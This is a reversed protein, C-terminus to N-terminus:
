ILLDRLKTERLEARIKKLVIGWGKESTPQRGRIAEVIEAVNIDVNPVQYGGGPGHVSVVLGAKKLKSFIPEFYKVSLYQRRALDALRVPGNKGHEALNIMAVVARQSKIDPIMEAQIGAISLVINFGVKPLTEVM